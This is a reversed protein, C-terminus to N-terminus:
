SRRRRRRLLALGACGVLSFTSPEPMINFTTWFAGTGEVIGDVDVGNVTLTVTEGTPGGGAIFGSNFATDYNGTANYYTGEESAEFIIQSLLGITDDNNGLLNGATDFIGLETDGASNFTNIDILDGAVGVVGWSLANDPSDGVVPDPEAFDVAGLSFDFTAAGGGFSEVSLCYTGADLATRVSEGNFGDLFAFLVVKGSATLKQEDEIAGTELSDLLFADPDTIM